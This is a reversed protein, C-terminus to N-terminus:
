CRRMKAPLCSSPLEKKVCVSSTKGVVVDLFLGGEVEDESESSTNHVGGDGSDSFFEVAVLFNAPLAVSGEGELGCVASLSLASM